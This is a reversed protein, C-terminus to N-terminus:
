ALGLSFALTGVVAHSIILPWINRMRLYAIGWVVGLLFTNLLLATDGYALHILSFMTASYLVYTWGSSQLRDTMLKPISRCVVEQCPSSVLVYFPAFSLWVPQQQDFSFLRTALVMIAALGVTLTGCGIWHWREHPRGFGLEVYSFGALLCLAICLASVALLAYFRYEFPLLGAQIALGPLTLLVAFGVLPAFPRLQRLYTM